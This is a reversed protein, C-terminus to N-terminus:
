KSPIQHALSQVKLKIHAELALRMEEENKPAGQQNERAQLFLFAQLTWVKKVKHM